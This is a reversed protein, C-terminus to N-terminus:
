DARHVAASLIRRIDRISTSSYSQICLAVQDAPAEHIMAEISSCDLRAEDWHAVALSRVVFEHGALHLPSRTVFRGYLLYESIPRTRCLALM